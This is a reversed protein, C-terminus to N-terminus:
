KYLYENEKKLARKIIRVRDEVPGYVSNVFGRWNTDDKEPYDTRTQFVPWRTEKRYILHEILVKAVDFRDILELCSVLEHKDGASLLQLKGNLKKLKKRAIILKSETLEYHSTAGGAYEDMIEQLNRELEEPSMGERGNMCSLIREKEKNIGEGNIHLLEIGKVEEVAAKAAIKGEVWAGSVYKKPAGGAVDGAAFLGSITTRREGDIWYGAQCHGGIVVPEMGGIEVPRKRPNYGDNAWLLVIAPNMNLYVEKLKKEEEISLDKTDFYCPGRGEREEQLTALLRHLSLCRKGGLHKYREELYEEGHANRQKIDSGQGITGTPANVGKVRLPIFRNEFSTMEAGIRIGMAYGTGVNWPCYWTTNRADSTKIPKYLRTAGGTTVIVAKAHIVYFKGDRNGFGYVGRVREGDFIFNTAVVRNLVKVDARYVAAALIPKLREGYIRISRKGRSVYNGNQDKEIPLGLAEVQKVSENLGKAISHVLDERIVGFFEDKVYEVYTEPTQGTNLYANIANLGMALCGSREIRAKEMVICKISQDLKKAEIAAMCGAAGGGIILIDTDLKVTSIEKM